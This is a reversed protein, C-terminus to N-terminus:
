KKMRKGIASHIRGSIRLFENLDNEGVEDIIYEVLELLAAFAKQKEARGRETICVATKRRDSELPARKIYGKNEAAKLVVAVHPTSLKFRAAIDGSFVTETSEDLMCLIPIIGRECYDDIPGFFEKPRVDDFKKIFEKAKEKSDM